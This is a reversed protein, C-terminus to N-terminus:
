WKGYRKKTKRKFFCWTRLQSAVGLLFLFFFHKQNANVHHLKRKKKPSKSQSAHPAWLSHDNMGDTNNNYIEVCSSSPFFFAFLHLSLSFVSTPHSKKMFWFNLKQYHFSQTEQFYPFHPFLKKFTRVDCVSSLLSFSSFTEYLNPKYGLSLFYM